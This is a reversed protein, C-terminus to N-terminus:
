EVEKTKEKGSKEKPIYIPTDTTIKESTKASYWIKFDILDKEKIKMKTHALNWQIPIVREPDESTDEYRIYKRLLDDGVGLYKCAQNLSYLKEDVGFDEYLEDLIDQINENKRKLYEKLLKGEYKTYTDILTPKHKTISDISKIGNDYKKMNFMVELFRKRSYYYILGRKKIFFIGKCRDERFYTHIRNPNTFCIHTILEKARMVTFGKKIGKVIAEYQNDSALESGEDLAVQERKNVIRLVVVLEKLTRTVNHIPTDKKHLTDIYDIGHLMLNSKGKGEEGCYLFVSDKEQSQSEVAKRWIYKTGQLNKSYLTM